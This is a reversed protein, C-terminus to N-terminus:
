AGMWGIVGGMILAAGLWHAGDILTLDWGFLQNRHNTIMVPLIITLGVFFGSILGNALTVQGVGLHGIIGALGLALVLECLFTMVMIAPNMGNNSPDIRAAKMWAKSFLAGYWLAGFMFAAVAAVLVALYDIGGFAM